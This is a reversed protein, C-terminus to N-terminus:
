KTDRKNKIQFGAKFLHFLSEENYIINVGAFRWSNDDMWKRFLELLESDNM